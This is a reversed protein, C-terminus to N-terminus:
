PRRVIFQSDVTSGIRLVPTVEDLDNEVLISAIAKWLEHYPKTTLILDAKNTMEQSSRALLVRLREMAFSRKMDHRFWSSKYLDNVLSTRPPTLQLFAQFAESVAMFKDTAAVSLGLSSSAGADLGYNMNSTKQTHDGQLNAYSTGHNLPLVLDPFHKEIIAGTVRRLQDPGLGISYDPTDEKKLITAVRESSWRGQQAPDSVIVDTFVKFAADASVYLGAERAIREAVPRLVGLYLTVLIGLESPLAWLEAQAARSYPRHPEPWGMVLRQKMIYVDRLRVGSSGFCHELVQFARPSIGATFCYARLIGRLLFREKIFWARVRDRNCHDKKSIRNMIRHTSETSTTMSKFIKDILPQFVESNQEFISEHRSTDDKLSSLDLTCLLDPLRVQCPLLTSLAQQVHAISSVAISRFINIRIEKPSGLRSDSYTLVDGAANWM